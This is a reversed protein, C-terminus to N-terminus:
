DPWKRTDPWKGTDFAVQCKADFTKEHMLALVTLSPLNNVQQRAKTIKNEIYGSILRWKKTSIDMSM